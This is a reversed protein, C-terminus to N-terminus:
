LFPFAFSLVAGTRSHPAYQVQELLFSSRPAAQSARAGVFDHIIRGKGQARSTGDCDHRGMPFGSVTVDGDYETQHYGKDSIEIIVLVQLAAYYRREQQEERFVLHLGTEASPSKKTGVHVVQSQGGARGLGHAAGTGRHAAAPFLQKFDAQGGEALAM